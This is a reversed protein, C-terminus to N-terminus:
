SQLSDFNQGGIGDENGSCTWLSIIFCLRETGDHGYQTCALKLFGNPFILIFRGSTM